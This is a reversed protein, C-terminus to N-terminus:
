STWTGQFDAHANTGAPYGDAGDVAILTFGGGVQTGADQQSFQTTPATCTAVASSDAAVGTTAAPGGITGNVSGYVTVAGTATITSTTTITSTPTITTTAETTGNMFAMYTTTPASTTTYTTTVVSVSEIGFVSCSELVMPTTSSNVITVTCMGSALSCSVNQGSVEGLFAAPIENGVSASSSTLSPSTLSSTLETSSSSITSPHGAFELVGVVAAITIVVLVFAMTGAGVGKRRRM